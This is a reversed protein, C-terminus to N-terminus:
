AAAQHDQNRSASGAYLLIKCCGVTSIYGRGKPLLSRAIPLLSGRQAGCLIYIEMCKQFDTSLGDHMFVLDEHLRLNQTNSCLQKIKNSYKLNALPYMEIKCNLEM